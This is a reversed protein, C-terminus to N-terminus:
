FLAGFVFITKVVPLNTKYYCSSNFFLFLFNLSSINTTDSPFRVKNPCLARIETGHKFLGMSCKTM